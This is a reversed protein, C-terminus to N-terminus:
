SGHRQAQVRALCDQEPPPVAAESLAFFGTRTVDYFFRVTLSCTDARYTWTHAPGAQGSTAPDGLLARVADQSMGVLTTPLKSAAQPAPATVAPATVAPATAVPAMVASEPAAPEPTAPEPAAPEPTAPEPM